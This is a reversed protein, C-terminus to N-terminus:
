AVGKRGAREKGGVGWRSNRGRREKGEGRRMKVRQREETENGTAREGKREDRVRMLVAM